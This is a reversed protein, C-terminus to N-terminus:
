GGIVVTDLRICTSGASECWDTVSHNNLRQAEAKEVKQTKTFLFGSFVVGFLLFIKKM